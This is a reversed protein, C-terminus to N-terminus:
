DDKTNSQMMVVSIGSDFNVSASQLRNGHKLGDFIPKGSSKTRVLNAFSFPHPHLIGWAFSNSKSSPIPLSAMPISQEM